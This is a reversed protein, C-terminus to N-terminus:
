GKIFDRIPKSRSMSWILAGCLVVSPVVYGGNYLASYFYPSAMPIGWFSEPMLEAYITIGSIYHVIFRALGGIAPAILIRGKARYLGALGVAAYAVTYDLLMSQWSLAWGGAMYFKITGFIFGTVCGWGAGRRMAFLLLPLMTVGISGGQFWLDLELFSLAWCLAITIAGECVTLLRDRGNTSM